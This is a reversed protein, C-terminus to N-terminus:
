FIEFLRARRNKGLFKVEDVYKSSYGSPSNALKEVFRETALLPKKYRKCQKQIRAATNLVDGHFALEHKINGVEAAMVKGSNISATFFPSIGYKKEFHGKHKELVKAYMFYFDVARVYNNKKQANWTIVVEDGVYQYVRGFSYLLPDTLLGFCEQIFDSYRSHGLKEAYATSSELDLFLFIKDEERPTRYYGLMLKWLVGHGVQQFFTILLQFIFSVIFIVVLFFLITPNFLFDEMKSFAEMPALGREITYHAMGLGLGLLLFIFTDVVFVSILVRRVDHRKTIKEFFYTNILWSIIAFGTVILSAWWIQDRFMVMGKSFGQRVDTGAYGLFRLFLALRIAINWFLISFILYFLRYQLKSGRRRHKIKKM